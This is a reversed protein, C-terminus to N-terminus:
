KEGGEPKRSDARNDVDNVEKMVETFIQALAMALASHDSAVLLTFIRQARRRLVRDVVQGLRSTLIDAHVKKVVKYGDAVVAQVYQLLPPGLNEQLFGLAECMTQAEHCCNRMALFTMTGLVSSFYDPDVENRFLPRLSGLAEATEKVTAEMRGRYAEGLAQRTDEDDLIGPRRKLLGPLDSLAKGPVGLCDALALLEQEGELCRVGDRVEDGTIELGWTKVGAVMIAEFADLIGTTM